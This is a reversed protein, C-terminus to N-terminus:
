IVDSTEEALATQMVHEGSALMTTEENPIVEKYLVDNAVMANNATTEEKNKFKKPCLTRHHKDKEGCHLCVKGTVRCDKVMHDQKM